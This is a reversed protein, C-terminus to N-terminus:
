MWVFKQDGAKLVEGYRVKIPKADNRLIYTEHEIYRRSEDMKRTTRERLYLIGKEVEVEVKSSPIVTNVYDPVNSKQLDYVGIMELVAIFESLGLYPTFTTERRELAKILDDFMDFEEVFIEYSPNKIVELPIQIRTRDDKISQFNVPIRMKEVPKELSVAVNLKGLIKLHEAMSKREVGLIAGIMGLITPRPPFSYTSASTTTYVRRFHAYPGRIRFILVKM